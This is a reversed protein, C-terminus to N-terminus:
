RCVDGPLEAADAIVECGAGEVRCGVVVDGGLFAFLGVGGAIEVEVTFDLIEEVGGFDLPLVIAFDFVRGVNEEAFFPLVAKRHIGFLGPEGDGQFRKLEVEDRHDSEDDDRKKRQARAQLLLKRFHLAGPARVNM